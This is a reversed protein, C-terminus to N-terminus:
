EIVRMAVSFESVDWSLKMVANGDEEAFSITFREVPEDLMRREMPVLLFDHEANYAPCPACKGVFDVVVSEVVEAVLAMLLEALQYRIGPREWRVELRNNGVM